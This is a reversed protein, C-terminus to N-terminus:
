LSAPGGTRRSRLTHPLAALRTLVEADLEGDVDTLVYGVASNTALHQALINLGREALVRDIAALMGPVNEHLHAVRRADAAREPSLEPLNVSGASAGAALYAVLRGSVYQGIDLQAEETSGGIHPTMIVNPRQALACAFPANRGAPEEPYVDLAAGRLHGSALAADLADLDVVHGRSLNLLIAGPKMRALAARDILGRNGPRGDVHLSVVDATALLEELSACRVANGLALREALDFYGVQMGLAEALVSLQMGIKGYGVIGLTKGRVEHSAAASKEWRGAHMARIKDPLNRFLLIIEAIALEAVSRTNSFPANFVCIGHRTCATLDIQNTGICFAGLTLLAPTHELLEANVQTKSRIGLVSVDALMEALAAPEPSGAVLEVAYGAAELRARAAPHIGELLLARQTRGADAIGLDALVAGFDEAIREAGATVEPRRVTEVYAYFRTCLGCAALERDGAGDGVAIAPGALALARVAAVKGGDAALPGAPDFGLSGDAAEILRNALVHGAGIGFEAVVPEIYEHFGSSVIYIREAHARLWAGHRRFSPAIRERLAVVLPALHERRPSILEFRRALAEGFPMRGAMARATLDRVAALREDRDPRGALAIEALLELSEAAVFTSDFDILLWPLTM